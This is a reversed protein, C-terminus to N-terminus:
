GASGTILRGEQYEHELTTGDPRYLIFKGDRKGDKFNVEGLKRGSDDWETLVGNLANDKYTVERQPQGSPFYSRSVGERVGGAYTEELKPTKGDQHYVVWAGDRKNNKYSKKAMLTGDERFVDWAGDARGKNFTVTKCIQGNDYWFTWAGNHVGNEYTGEAFKQGSEYYETFKGHNVLQDDSLKLVQREIRTAGSEYKEALNGSTVVVPPPPPTGEPLLLKDEAAAQPAPAASAFKPFTGVCPLVAALVAALFRRSLKMTEIRM